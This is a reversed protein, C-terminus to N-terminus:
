SPKYGNVQGNLRNFKQKLKQKLKGLNLNTQDVKKLRRRAGERLVGFRLVVVRM